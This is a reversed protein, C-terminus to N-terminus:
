RPRQAHSIIWDLVMLQADRNDWKEIISYSFAEVTRASAGHYSMRGSTPKLGKGHLICLGFTDLFICGGSIGVKPNLALIVKEPRAITQVWLKDGYGAQIIKKIDHPTGWCPIWCMNRCEECCCDEAEEM